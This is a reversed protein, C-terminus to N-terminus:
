VTGYESGFGFKSQKFYNFVTIYRGGNDGELWFEVQKPGVFQYGPTFRPPHSGGTKKYDWPAALSHIARSKRIKKGDDLTYTVWARTKPLFKAFARLRRTQWDDQPEVFLRNTKCIELLSGSLKFVGHTVNVNLLLRGTALRASQFFGRAAILAHNNITLDQITQDPGFPFFRASGVASVQDLKTRPGYGFVVNLADVADPFRPFVHDGPDDAMTKIYSLLDGIPAETPGHFTIDIIDANTASGDMPLRIRLPNHELQLKQLAILQSKFETALVVKKDNMTLQNLAERIALYLKRGRIDRAKSKAKAIEPNESERSVHAVELTYKYFVAPKVNVQFYNAWLM